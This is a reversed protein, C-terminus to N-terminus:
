IHILSLGWHKRYMSFGGKRSGMDYWRGIMPGPQFGGARHFRGACSETWAFFNERTKPTSKLEVFPKERGGLMTLVDHEEDSTPVIGNMDPFLVQAVQAESHNEVLLRMAVSRGDECARLTVTASVGGQLQVMDSPAPVTWPISHYTLTITNGDCAIAPPTSHYKGTPNLRLTDYDTHVPWSLDFLGKGGQIMPPVGPYELRQLAGTSTDFTFTTNNLTYSVTNM